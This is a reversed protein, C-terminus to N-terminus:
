QADAPGSRGAALHRGLLDDLLSLAEEVSAATGYVYHDPRVIVVTRDLGTLWGTLVGDQEVLDDAGAPAELVTGPPHM